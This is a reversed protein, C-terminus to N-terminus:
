ATEPMPVDYGARHELEDLLENSRDILRNSRVRPNRAWIIFAAVAGGVVAIAAISKLVTKSPESKCM